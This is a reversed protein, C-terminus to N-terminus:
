LDGGEPSLSVVKRTGAPVFYISPFGTWTILYTPSANAVGNMKAFYIKDELGEMEIKKAIKRFEQTFKEGPHPPSQPSYWPSYYYPLHHPVRSPMDIM